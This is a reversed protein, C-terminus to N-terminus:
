VIKEGILSEYHAIRRELSDISRNIGYSSTVSQLAQLRIRYNKIKEKIRYDPTTVM